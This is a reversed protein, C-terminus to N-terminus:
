RSLFPVQFPTMQFPLEPTFPGEEHPPPGEHPEPGESLTLVVTTSDGPDISAGPAPDTSAVTGEPYRDSHEKSSSIRYDMNMARLKDIAEDPKLGRLDPMRVKDEGSGKRFFYSPPRRFGTAEVGRLAEVMTDRWIPGPITAGYVPGGCHTPLCVNTMPYKYGGRPDGVWVASSLEPTYGAFWAASYNDVTGTKGAAPRGLSLGRATGKTLVGSMVHNVADAVGKDIVQECNASPVKLKKGDSRTIQKIAIPECYKGRAGFAAYAAAVRLPSVDNFGLTFSAYEQLPKGDARRIGLKKAMKVTDCLGVEKELKLFFTNVSHWTGTLLSFSRGGEGDSSNRLATTDSVDKGKCDRFGTPSYAVPATIREGIPMDEDFAAALTFAKFTSGAAMGVSTGHSADAAFNIWTKGPEGDPGLERGVDMGKIEGTGPEVLVQAAAKKESNKAPVHRLLAKHAANQTRWDLTTRIKLGGIWLLREREKKTKGFIPNDLIERQVYDCFFPAKSETCGNKTETLKLVLPKDKEKRAQEPTIWGLEAMRDLVVNRRNRAGEGNLRVNYFNGNKLIGALTAAQNLTLKSASVSFYRRAAAEVGYAGDGFYAINLYKELIEDKPYRREVAVAYRLERLKRGTTTEVAEQKEEESEANMYLLNKVYQQTIGSGGQAAEGGNNLNSMLARMTGRTDLAGHEYFRSDEIALVAQKVVPAMKDLPVDVRNQRYFTAILTGDEALIQSRQPAKLEDLDVPESLLWDASDRAGVGATWALPVMLLGALLGALMSYGALRRAADARGIGGDAEM